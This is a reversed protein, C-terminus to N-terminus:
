WMSAGKMGPCQKLAAAKERNLRTQRQKSLEQRRSPLKDRRMFFESPTEAPLQGSNTEVQVGACRLVVLKSASPVMKDFYLAEDQQIVWACDVSGQQLSKEDVLISHLYNTPVNEHPGWYILVAVNLSRYLSVLGRIHTLHAREFSSLWEPHIHSKKVMDERWTFDPAIRKRQELCALALTSTAILPLFAEQSAAAARQLSKATDHPRKYSYHAPYSWMSFNGSLVVERPDAAEITFRDRAHGLRQSDTNGIVM